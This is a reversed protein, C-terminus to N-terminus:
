RANNNDRAHGRRKVLQTRCYIIIVVIVAASIRKTKFTNIKQCQDGFVTENYITYYLINYTRLVIPSTTSHEGSSQLGLLGLISVIQVERRDDISDYLPSQVTGFVCAINLLLLQMRDCYIERIYTYLILIDCLINYYAEVYIINNHPYVCM